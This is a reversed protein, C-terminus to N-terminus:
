RTNLHLSCHYHIPTTVLVDLLSVAGVIVLTDVAAEFIIIVSDFSLM